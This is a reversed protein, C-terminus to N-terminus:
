RKPYMRKSACEVAIQKIDYFPDGDNLNHGEKVAYVLKPFVPTINKKGLGKIQQKLIWKQVLKASWTDGLGFGFTVFPSQGNSTHLTNVEYLLGQMASSVDRETMEDAYQIYNAGLPLWKIAAEMHKDYTKDVYPALVVDIDGITTGGYQSSAVQAIIQATIAAATTISNPTEIEAAGMKFGNDFMFKLDVLCCNTIPFFPSYDLDHFHIDGDIHGNAVNKPLIHNLGYHKCVLGALLDRQTHLVRSDKNSNENLTAEDTRNILGMIHKHLASGEERAIDRRARYDIYARAANPHERMLENEVYTHIDRVTVNTNTSFLQAQIELSTNVAWGSDPIGVENMAKLIVNIIKNVDFPVMTGDLKIVNIM